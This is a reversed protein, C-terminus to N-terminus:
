ILSEYINNYKEIIKFTWDSNYKMCNEILINYSSHNDVYFNLAKFLTKLFVSNPDDSLNLNIDTKFGCGTSINDFIDTITDSYIGSNNCIPICGYKMAEFHLTDGVNKRAPLLIMDASALFQPLNIKGDLFVWRGSLGKTSECFDIFSKIYSNKYGNPINFIVQINKNREFLKLISYIAIDIGNENVNPSFTCFLLPAEYFSDLYGHINCEGDFLKNDTFKTAIRDQTLEKILYKKNEKRQTRFNDTNFNFRINSQAPTSYGYHVYNNNQGSKQIINEFGSLSPSNNQITKYYEKSFVAWYDAKQMTYYNPNYMKSGNPFLNPYLKLIRANLREFLTNETVEENKDITLRFNLYNDYIFDLCEKINYSKDDINKQFLSAICKQIIKDKCIRKIGKKNAINIFAWFPEYMDSDRSIDEITQFVKKPHKWLTEFEAGLYFPIKECHVIDCNYKKAFIRACKLYASLCKIDNFYEKSKANSFANSFIGYVTINSDTKPYKYVHATHNHNQSFFDFSISTKILGNTDGIIPSLVIIEKDPYQKKFSLIFDTPPEFLTIYLIQTFNKQLLTRIYSSFLKRYYRYRTKIEYRFDPRASYDDSIEISDSFLEGLGDEIEQTIPDMNGM